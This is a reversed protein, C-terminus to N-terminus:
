RTPYLKCQIHKGRLSFFVVRFHSFCSEKKQPPRLSLIQPSIGSLTLHGIFEDEPMDDMANKLEKAEPAIDTKLSETIFKRKLEQLSENSSEGPVDDQVSSSSTQTMRPGGTVSSMGQRAAKEM